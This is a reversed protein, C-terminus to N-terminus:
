AIDHYDKYMLFAQRSIGKLHLADSKKSLFEKIIYIGKYRKTFYQQICHPHLIKRQIDTLYRKDQKEVVQSGRFSCHM